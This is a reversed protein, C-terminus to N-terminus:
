SEKIDNVGGCCRDKLLVYPREPTDSYDSILTESTLLQRRFNRMFYTDCKVVDLGDTSSSSDVIVDLTDRTYWTPHVELKDLAQLTATVVKYLEGVIRQVCRILGYLPWLHPIEVSRLM